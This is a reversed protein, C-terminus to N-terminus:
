KYLVEYVTKQIRSRRKGVKIFESLTIICERNSPKKSFFEKLDGEQWWAGILDRICKEVNYIDTDSKCAVQDYLIKNLHNVSAPQICATAICSKLYYYGRMKPCNYELLFRSVDENTIM